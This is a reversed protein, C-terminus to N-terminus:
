RRVDRRLRTQKRGHTPCVRNAFPIPVKVGVLAARSTSSVQGAFADLARTEAAEAEAVSGCTCYHVHLTDLCALTKIWHGGAHPSRNGLKHRFFQNLRHALSTAKGIYLISEDPLWFGQLCAVLESAPPGTKGDLELKPVRALWHAVAQKCVPAAPRAAENRDDHGSLSIMYVGPNTSPPAVGWATQGEVALGITTMLQATSIPM